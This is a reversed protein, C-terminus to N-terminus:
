LSSNCDATSFTIACARLKVNTPAPLMTVNACNKIKFCSNYDKSSDITFYFVEDSNPFGASLKVDPLSSIFIVNEIEKDRYTSTTGTEANLLQVYAGSTCPDAAIVRGQLCKGQLREIPVAGDQDCGSVATVLLFVFSLAIAKRVRYLKSYFQCYKLPLKNFYGM